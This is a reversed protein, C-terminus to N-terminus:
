TDYDHAQGLSTLGDGTSQFLMRTHDPLFLTDGSSGDPATGRVLIRTDKLGPLARVSEVKSSPLLGILDIPAEAAARRLDDPASQIPLLVIRNGAHRLDALLRGAAGPEDSSPLLRVKLGPIELQTAESVIRVVATQGEPWTARSLLEQVKPACWVQGWEVGAPFRPPEVPAILFVTDDVRSLGRRALFEPMGELQPRRNLFLMVVRDGHARLIVCESEVGSSLFQVTATHEASKTPWLPACGLLALLPLLYHNRM